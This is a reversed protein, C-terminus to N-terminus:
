PCSDAANAQFVNEKLTNGAVPGKLGCANMALTNARLLNGVASRGSMVLFEIGAPNSTIVNDSILNDTAETGVRIGALTSSSVTNDKVTSGVPGNVLISVRNAVFSNDKVVIASTNGRLMIGRTRNGEFHSAKITNGVSGAQVDVGDVHDVLQANNVVVGSSNAILVGTVFNRITGGKISVDSRGVVSIGVGVGSGTITHGDLNIRIRDAGVTLGNGACTLDHELRVDEFITTGCLDNAAATSAGWFVLAALVACTRVM